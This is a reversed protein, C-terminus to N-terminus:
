PFRVIAAPGLLQNTRPESAQDARGNGLWIFSRYMHPVADSGNLSNAHGVHFHLHPGAAKGFNGLLGIVQGRRVRDGTKVRISGPQLHADFAYAGESIRLSM